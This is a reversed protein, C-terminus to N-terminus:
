ERCLTTQSIKGRAPLSKQVVTKNLFKTVLQMCSTPKESALEEGYFYRTIPFALNKQWQKLRPMLWKTQVLFQLTKSLLDQDLTRSLLNRKFSRTKTKLQLYHNLRTLRSLKEM